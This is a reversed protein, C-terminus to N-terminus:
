EGSIPFKWCCAQLHWGATTEMARHVEPVGLLKIKPASRWIVVRGGTEWRSCWHGCFSFLRERGSEVAASLPKYCQGFFYKLNSSYACFGSVVFLCSATQRHWYLVCWVESVVPSLTWVMFVIPLHSSFFVSFITMLLLLLASELFKNFKPKLTFCQDFVPMYIYIYIYIYIYYLVSLETYLFYLWPTSQNSVHAFGSALM